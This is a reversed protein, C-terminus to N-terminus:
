SSPMSIARIALLFRLRRVGIRDLLLAHGPCAAPFPATASCDPQFCGDRRGVVPDAISLNRCIRDQLFECEDVGVKVIVEGQPAMEDISLNVLLSARGGQGLPLRERASHGRELGSTWRTSLPEGKDSLVM